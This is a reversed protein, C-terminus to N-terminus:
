RRNKHCSFLHPFISSKKKGSKTTRVSQPKKSWKKDRKQQNLTFTQSKRKLLFITSAKAMILKINKIPNKSVECDFWIVGGEDIRFIDWLKNKIAKLPDMFSATNIVANVSVRYGLLFNWLCKVIIGFYALLNGSRGFTILCLFNIPKILSIRPSFKATELNHIKPNEM